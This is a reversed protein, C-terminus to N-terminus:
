ASEMLLDLQEISQDLRRAVKGATLQLDLYQQKLANVEAALADNHKRLVNNEDRTSLLDAELAASQSEWSATLEAQLSERAEASLERQLLAHDVSAELQLIADIVRQSAVALPRENLTSAMMRLSGSNVHQM